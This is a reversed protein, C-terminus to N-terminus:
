RAYLTKGSTLIRILFPDGMAARRQEQAPTYVLIDAGIGSGFIIRRVERMLELSTKESEKVIFLDVDSWEHPEGWAYSGFLIIKEPQFEKVIKSTIEKLKTEIKKTTM